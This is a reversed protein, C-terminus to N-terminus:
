RSRLKSLLFISILQKWYNLHERTAALGNPTLVKRRARHFETVSEVRRQTSVGGEVFRAVLRDTMYPDALQSLALAAAYDAAISFSLDFGNVRRLLETRVFTGQHPPFHGRAFMARKERAYNWHSSHVVEGSIEHIEVRGVIWSPFDSEVTDRIDRLTFEDIFADGANLFYIFTGSAMALGANMASYIGQPAQWEIRYNSNPLSDRIIAPIRFEDLSSDIVIWEYGSETQRAISDATKGFGIDDDKVVTVISLWPVATNM